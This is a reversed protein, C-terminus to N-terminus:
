LLQTEKLRSSELLRILGSPEIKWYHSLLYHFARTTLVGVEWVTTWRLSLSQFWDIAGKKLLGQSIFFLHYLSLQFCKLRVLSYIASYKRSGCIVSRDAAATTPWLYTQRKSLLLASCCFSVKYLSQPDRQPLNVQAQDYPSLHATTLTAVRQLDFGIKKM